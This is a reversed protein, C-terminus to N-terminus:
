FALREGLLLGVFLSSESLLSCLKFRAKELLFAFAKLYLVRRWDLFLVLQVDNQNSGLLAALRSYGVVECLLVLPTDNAEVLEEVVAHFPTELYPFSSL